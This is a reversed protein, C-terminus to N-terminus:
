LASCLVTANKRLRFRDVCYIVKKLSLLTVPASLIHDMWTEHEQDVSIVLGVRVLQINISARM